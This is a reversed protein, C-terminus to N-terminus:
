PKKKMANKALDSISNIEAKPKFSYGKMYRGTKKSRKRYDQPNISTSAQSSQGGSQPVPATSQGTGNSQGPSVPVLEKSSTSGGGPGGSPGSPDRVAEDAVVGRRNSGEHLLDVERQANRDTIISDRMKNSKDAYGPKLREQLAKTREIPATAKGSGPMFHGGTSGTLAGVALGRIAKAGMEQPTEEDARKKQPSGDPANMRDYQTPFLQAEAGVGAGVVAPSKGANMIASKALGTIGGKEAATAAAEHTTLYQSAKETNQTAKAVNPARFHPNVAKEAKTVASNWPAMKIQSSVGGKLGIVAGAAMPGLAQLTTWYKGMNTNEFAIKAPHIRQLEATIKDMVETAQNSFNTRTAQSNEPSVGDVKTGAKLLLEKYQDRMAELAPNGQVAEDLSKLAAGADNSVSTQQPQAAQQRPKQNDRAEAADMGAAVVAGGVVSGAAIQSGRRSANMIARSGLGGVSMPAAVVIPAIGVNFGATALNAPSPDNYADGISDATNIGHVLVPAAYDALGQAVPQLYQQPRGGPRLEGTAGDDQGRPDPANMDYRYDNPNSEPQMPPFSSGRPDISPPAIAPRVLDTITQPPAQPGPPTQQQQPQQQGVRQRGTMQDISLGFEQLLAMFQPDLGGQAAAQQNMETDQQEPANLALPAAAAPNSFLTNGTRANTANGTGLAIYSAGDGEYHNPYKVTDYGNDILWNRVLDRSETLKNEASLQTARQLLEKPAIGDATLQKALNYGNASAPDRTIEAVKGLQLDVPTKKWGPGLPWPIPILGQKAIRRSSAQEKTGLHMGVENTRSMDFQDHRGFSRDSGHYLRLANPPAVEAARMGGAALGAMPALSAVNIADLGHTTIPRGDEDYKGQSQALARNLSELVDIGMQPWAVETDGQENEGLPLMNYRYALPKNEKASRITNTVLDRITQPIPAPGAMSM